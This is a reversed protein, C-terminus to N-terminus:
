FVLLKLTWTCTTYVQIHLTHQSIHPPIYSYNTVLGMTQSWDYRTDLRTLAIITIPPFILLLLQLSDRLSMCSSHGIWGNLYNILLMIIINMLLLCFNDKLTHPRLISPNGILLTEWQLYKTMRIESSRNHVLCM